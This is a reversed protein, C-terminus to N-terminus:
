SGGHAAFFCLVKGTADICLHFRGDPSVRVDLYPVAVTLPGPKTIPWMPHAGPAVTVVFGDRVHERVVDAPIEACDRDSCCSAPYSWGSMAQHAPAPTALCAAVIAICAAAFIRFM